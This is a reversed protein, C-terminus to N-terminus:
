DILGIMILKGSDYKDAEMGGVVQMPAYIVYYTMIIFGTGTKTLFGENVIDAMAANFCQKAMYVLSFMAFVTIFLILSNRKENIEKEPM